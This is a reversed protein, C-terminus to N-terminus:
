KAQPLARLQAARPTGTWAMLARETAEGNKDLWPALTVESHQGYTRHSYVVVVGRGELMMVRAFVAESLGKAHLMAAIFHEAEAKGTRPKSDTRVIEGAKEYNGLVGNALAALQEGDRVKENVVITVMDRWTKLDAQAGPTFENQGNKSWRHVYDTGSFRLTLPAPAAPKAQAMAGAPVLMALAALLGLLPHRLAAM